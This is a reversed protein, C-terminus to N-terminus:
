PIEPNKDIFAKSINSMSNTVFNMLKDLTDINGDTFEWALQLPRLFKPREASM